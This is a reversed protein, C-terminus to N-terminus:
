NNLVDHADQHGRADACMGEITQQDAANRENAPRPGGRWPGLFGLRHSQHMRGLHVPAAVSATTTPAKTDPGTVPQSMSRIFSRPATPWDGALQTAGAGGRETGAGGIAVIMCTSSSMTAATRAPSAALARALSVPNTNGPNRVAISAPTAIVLTPSAIPALSSKSGISRPLSIANCAKRTIYRMLRFSHVNPAAIPGSSALTTM